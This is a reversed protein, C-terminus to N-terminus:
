KIRWQLSLKQLEVSSYKKKYEKLGGAWDQKLIKSPKNIARQSLLYDLYDDLKTVLSPSLQNIKKEITKITNM